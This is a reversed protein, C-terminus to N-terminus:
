SAAFFRGSSTSAPSADSSTVPEDRDDDGASSSSGVSGAGSHAPLDNLSLFTRSAKILFTVASIKRICYREFHKRSHQWLSCICM